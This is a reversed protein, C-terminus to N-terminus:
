ELNITAMPIKDKNNHNTKAKIFDNNENLTQLNSHVENKVYLSSKVVSASKGDPSPLIQAMKQGSNSNIKGDPSNETSIATSDFPSPDPEQAM